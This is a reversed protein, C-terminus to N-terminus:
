LASHDGCAGDEESEFCLCDMGLTDNFWEASRHGWLACDFVNDNADRVQMSFALNDAGQRGCEFVTSQGEVVQSTNEVKTVTGKYEFWSEDAAVDTNFFQHTERWADEEAPEASGDWADSDFVQVQVKYALGDTLTTYTWSTQNCTWDVTQIESVDGVPGDSDGNDSGGEDSCGFAFLALALTAYKM